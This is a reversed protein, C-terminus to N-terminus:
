VCVRARKALREEAWQVVEAPLQAHQAVRVGFSADAQGEKVKYLLTLGSSGECSASLHANRAGAVNTLGRALEFFHTAFMTPARVEELLHRAIADALALGDTTSTGRGLEDILVLSMPTASRLLAGTELMELMFTSLGKGLADGAGVRAFIADRASITAASAPVFMGVQALLVCCGVSRLLTSKGGMNAGTVVLLRGEADIKVDNPVYDAVLTEVLPHRADYLSIEDGDGGYTMTPRTYPRPSTAVVHAFGCLVDLEAIKNTVGDFLDVFSSAVEVVQATLERQSAEYKKTLREYDAAANRLESSHFKCGDKRTDFVTYHASLKKRVKQEETKTIRFHYGHVTTRELKLSKGLELGLVKAAKVGMAELRAEVADREERLDQLKQDYSPNVAYEEPVRSLDIAAEILGEFRRLKDETHLEEFPKAFRDALIEAGRGRAGPASTDLSGLATILLPIASSVKYLLCLDQLTANQRELKRALREADPLGRMVADRLTSLVSPANSLLEVVDHRAEILSENVLPQKLWTRLLRKGMPTRQHCLLAYISTCARNSSSTSTGGGNAEAEAALGSRGGALPLVHLAKAAASDIRMFSQTDLARLEYRAHGSSDAVAEVYKMAGALAAAAAPSELVIKHRESVLAPTWGDTAGDPRRLLRALNDPLARADFDSKPRPTPLVSCRRLVDEVRRADGNSAGAGADDTRLVVCERAGTQMVAHELAVLSESTDVFATANLVRRYADVSAVGVTRTNDKNHVVVALSPPPALGGKDSGGSNFLEDQFADLKGPSASKTCKWKDGAGEYLEVTHEGRELLVDRLVDAFKSQNLSVSALAQDGTGFYRISSSSAGLYRAHILLASAGHVTYFGGASGRCFFRLVSSDSASSSSSSVLRKYFSNFGPTDSLSSEMAATSTAM